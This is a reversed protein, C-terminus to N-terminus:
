FRCSSSIKKESPKAEGKNGEEDDSDEDDSESKAVFRVDEWRVGYSECTYPPAKPTYTADGPHYKEHVWNEFTQRFWMFGETDLEDCQEEFGEMKKVISNNVLHQYPTRDTLTSDYKVGAFRIYPQQWIYVTLPNWDTVLV